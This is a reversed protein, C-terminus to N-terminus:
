FGVYEIEEMLQVELKDRVQQKVYSIVQVVEDATADGANIIFNAHKDSIKAGGIQFGKLGLQDILQSATKNGVPNRFACGATAEGVNQEDKKLKTLEVMRHRLATKDGPQLTFDVSFIIYPQHKFISDRYAFQCQENTLYHEQGDYDAITVGKIVKSMESGRCGLNAWTAGGISAPVGTAFELGSLGLQVAYRIAANLLVGAEATLVNGEVSLRNCEMKIVLGAFGHDHVLIDSGGGMIFVPWGHEKAVRLGGTVEQSTRARLFYRAPGGIKFTTFPALPVNEELPLNFLM